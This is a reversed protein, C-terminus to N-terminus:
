RSKGVRARRRKLVGEIGQLYEPQQSSRGFYAAVPTISVHLLSGSDIADPHFVKMLGWADPALLVVKLEENRRHAGMLRNLTEYDRFSYGIVILVEAQECCRSFYEYASFYPERNAAKDGTPYIIANQYEDSDMADYMAPARVIRGSKGLRIWDVSGHLKFQVLNRRGERPSYLDYESRNWHATKSFPDLELGETLEYTSYLTESLTEIALDYNTTFIPLCHVASDLYSFVLDLLPEYASRVANPDIMRYERIIEHRITSRLLAAEDKTIIIPGEDPAAAYQYEPNCQFAALYPLNLFIELDGLIKELDAERAAALLHLLERGSDPQITGKLKEVFQAMTPKGIGASAGAGLFLLVPSATILKNFGFACREVM